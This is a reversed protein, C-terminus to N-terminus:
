KGKLEHKFLEIRKRDELEKKLRKIEEGFRMFEDALRAVRLRLSDGNSEKAVQNITNSIYLWDARYERVTEALEIALNCIREIKALTSEDEDSALGIVREQVKSIYERIKSLEVETSIV